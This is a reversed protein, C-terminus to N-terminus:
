HHEGRVKPNDRGVFRVFDVTLVLCEYDACLEGDKTRVNGVLVAASPEDALRITDRISISCQPYTKTTPEGFQSRIRRSLISHNTTDWKGNLSCTRKTSQAAKQALGEFALSGILVIDKEM